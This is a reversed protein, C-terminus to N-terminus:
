PRRGSALFVRTFVGGGANGTEALNYLKLGLRIGQWMVWRVTCSLSYGWPIPGQERVEVDEFGCLRLLRSISNHQFCIEHTFDNYRHYTGWPSDANPTQLVLRGGPRLARFCGDLFRLAEDKQFHEVIDLGTILDFSRPRSELFELVNGEHVDPVVQRALAVQEPSLDVGAVQRYGRTKFFHLLKGGGCAVDLVSAEKDAPLWGRLYWDYARGWRASAKEDFREGADMFRSAYHRYIRERYVEKVADM